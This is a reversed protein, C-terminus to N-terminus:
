ETYYTQLKDLVLQLDNDIFIEEVPWLGLPGRIRENVTKKTLRTQYVYKFGLAEEEPTINLLSSKCDVLDSLAVKKCAIVNNFYSEIGQNMLAGKVKIFTEMVMESENLIDMTHALFIINKTSKVVYYQMLKKFYQAYDSWAKMTNAATLVYNSEFMDMLYTLTDVVITHCQKHEEAADFYQYVKLPDKIKLVKFNNAFPLDKGAECNLYMVGKSNKLNRLSATKGASSKGALLVSKNNSM